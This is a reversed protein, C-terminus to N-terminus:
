LVQNFVSSTFDNMGDKGRREFWRQEVAKKANELSNYGGILHPVHARYEKSFYSHEINGVILGSDDVARWKTEGMQEWTLM